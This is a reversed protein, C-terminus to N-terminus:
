TEGEGDEVDELDRDAYANDLVFAFYDRSLGFAQEDTFGGKVFAEHLDRVDRAMESNGARAQDRQAGALLRQAEDEDFM